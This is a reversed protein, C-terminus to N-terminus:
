LTIRSFYRNGRDRRRRWRRPSVHKRTIESPQSFVNRLLCMHMRWVSVGGAYYAIPRVSHSNATGKSLMLFGEVIIAIEGVCISDYVHRRPNNIKFISPFPPPSAWLVCKGGIYLRTEINEERSKQLAPRQLQRLGQRLTQLHHVRALHRLHHLDGVLLVLPEADEGVFLHPPIFSLIKQKSVFQTSSSKVVSLKEVTEQLPTTTKFM